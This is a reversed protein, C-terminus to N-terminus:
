SVRTNAPLSTLLHKMVHFVKIFVIMASVYILIKLFYGAALSPDIMIFISFTSLLTYVFSSLISGSSARIVRSRLIGLATGCLFSFLIAGEKGFLILGLINHRANPGIGSEIGYYYEYMKFGLVYREQLPAGFSILQDLARLISPFFYEFFNVEPLWDIFNRNYGLVFADGFFLFREILAGTVSLESEWTSLVIATALALLPPSVVMFRNITREVRHLSLHIATVSLAFLLILFDSKGGKTLLLFFCATLVVMDLPSFRGAKKKFLISIPLAIWGIDMFWAIVGLQQFIILRSTREFLLPGTSLLYLTSVLLTIILNAWYIHTILSTDPKLWAADNSRAIGRRSCFIFFGLLFSAETLLFSTWYEEDLEGARHMVIVANLAFSHAFIGLILPDAISRIKTRFLAFYFILCAAAIATSELPTEYVRDLFDSLQM